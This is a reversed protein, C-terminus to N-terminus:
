RFNEILMIDAGDSVLKSYLVTQGDPSVSIPFGAYGELLGLAQDRGSAPDVRHLSPADPSCDVCYLGDTAVAFGGRTACDVITQETGDALQIAVDLLADTKFPGSAIRHKLTQGELLQMSIFPQGEHEDIDYVTVVTGPLSGGGDREFTSRRRHM